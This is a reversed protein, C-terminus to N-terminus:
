PNYEIMKVTFGASLADNMLNNSAAAANDYGFYYGMLTVTGESSIKQLENKLESKLPWNGDSRKEIKFVNSIFLLPNEDIKKKNSIYAYCYVYSQSLRDEAGPIKGEPYSLFLDAPRAKKNAQPQVVSQASAKGASILLVLFLSIILTYNQKM